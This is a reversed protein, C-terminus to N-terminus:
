RRRDAHGRPWIGGCDKLHTIDQQYVYTFSPGAVALLAVERRDFLHPVEELCDLRPLCLEEVRWLEGSIAIGRTQDEVLCPYSGTDFLRYRPLTQVEGLFEQDALLDHNRCGRKLTGYVFLLLSAM